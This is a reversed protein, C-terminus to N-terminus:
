TVRKLIHLSRQFLMDIIQFGCRGALFTKLAFEDNGVIDLHTHNGCDERLAVVEVEKGGHCRGFLHAAVKVVEDNLTIFEEKNYTIHCSFPHRRRKVHSHCAREEAVQCAVVLASGVDHALHVMRNCGGVVGHNEDGRKDAHEVEFGM